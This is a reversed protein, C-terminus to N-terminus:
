RKKEQPGNPGSLKANPTLKWRGPPKYGRAVAIASPTSWALNDLRANSADGDLYHAVEENTPERVFARLVLRGVGSHEPKGRERSLKVTCAEVVAGRKTIKQKLLRQRVRRTKGGCDCRRELSLVRGADSVRYVGEFGPVDKWQEEM